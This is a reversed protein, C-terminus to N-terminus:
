KHFREKITCHYVKGSQTVRVLKSSNMKNNLPSFIFLYIFRAVTKFHLNRLILRKNISSNYLFRCWVVGWGTEDTQHKYITTEEQITLYILFSSKDAAILIEVRYLGGLKVLMNCIACMNAIVAMKRLWVSRHEQLHSTWLGAEDGSAESEYVGTPLFSSPVCISNKKGGWRIYMPPLLVQTSWAIIYELLFWRHLKKQM